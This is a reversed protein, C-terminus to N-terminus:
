VTPKIEIVKPGFPAGRQMAAVTKLLMQKERETSGVQSQQGTHFRPNIGQQMGVPQTLM